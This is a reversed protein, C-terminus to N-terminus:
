TESAVFANIAALAARKRQAFPPRELTWYGYVCRTGARTCDYTDHLAGDIVAAMHRSLAVVLSGNPLEDAKLHVKCGQGIQMTATWAFGLEAMYDKFWKRGTLIGHAASKANATKRKRSRKTLRQTANGKALRGYVEAYPLGTAIAIARAVCDGTHGKFGAAKRGGDDHVFKM